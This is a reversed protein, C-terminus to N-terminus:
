VHTPTTIENILRTQQRPSKPIVHTHQALTHTYMYTHTYM